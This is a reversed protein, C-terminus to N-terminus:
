DNTRKLAEKSRRVVRGAIKKYDHNQIENVLFSHVSYDEPLVSFIGDKYFGRNRYLEVMEIDNLLYHWVEVHKLAFNRWTWNDVSSILKRKKHGIRNFIEVFDEITEGAYTIGGKADLHFGQPTVITQIGAALADLFGMSGEDMGFFFYYDLSSIIKTYTDYIFENYYDVEVGLKRLDAVINEWGDGMIVFKFLTTDIQRAIDVLMEERKRFDIERHCRHTIGVVYKKPKLVHDHAPNIYCLKNRPLGYMMLKNMTDESMCIGMGCKHLRNQLLKIHWNQDVHAIMFTDYPHNVFNVFDFMVHHNIDYEKKRGGSISVEIDLKMLEEQLKVAFKELIWGGSTDIINVKM